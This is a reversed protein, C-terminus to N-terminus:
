RKPEEQAEAEDIFAVGASLLVREPYALRMQTPCLAVRSDNSCFNSRQTM